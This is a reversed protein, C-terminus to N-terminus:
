LSPALAVKSRLFIDIAIDRILGRWLPAGREPREKKVIGIGKGGGKMVVSFCPIDTPGDGLYIM